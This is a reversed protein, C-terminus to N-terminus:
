GSMARGDERSLAVVTSRPPLGPTFEPWTTGPRSWSAGPEAGPRRAVTLLTRGDPTLVAGGIGAGRPAGYLPVARGRGADTACAYLADPIAAIRGERDTGVYLVGAGAHLTEPAEPWAAIPAPRTRARPDPPPPAARGTLLARVVATEAGHDDGAPIIEIVRGAGRGPGGRCALFLRTARADIALGAPMDLPTAGARAADPRPDRPDAAAPLAMWRLAEGDFRAVALTGDDLADPGAAPNSLFRFLFGEMRRDTMYVAARGDRTLAAAADGHDFRGLATRKGPVSQPDLPDFEVMWGFGAPDRPAGRGRAPDGEALLVTGWPTACGGRPGLIGLVSDGLARQAPGTIRCLTRGHLRRMQFGGDVVLWRGDQEALNIISAGQMGLAIDARDQGPPFAMAPDVTPHAVVLVGRAIGDTAPPPAVLAVIRSDWGFQAVAADVSPAAPEFRPADFEVRDGWRLLVARRLGPAVTDDLKTELVTAGQARAGRTAARAALLAAAAPLLARRPIM